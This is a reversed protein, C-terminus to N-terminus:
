SVVSKSYMSRSEKCVKGKVFAGGGGRGEGGWCNGMNM